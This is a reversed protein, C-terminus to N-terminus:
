RYVQVVKSDLVYIDGNEDIRERNVLIATYEGTALHDKDATYEQNLTGQHPNVKAVLFGLIFGVALGIGIYGIAKSLRTWFGQGSDKYLSPDYAPTPENIPPKSTLRAEHTLTIKKPSPKM